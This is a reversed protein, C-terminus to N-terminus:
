WLGVLSILESICHDILVLLELVNEAQRHPKPDRVLSKGALGQKKKWLALTSQSTMETRERRVPGENGM